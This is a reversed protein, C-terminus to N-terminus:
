DFCGQLFWHDDDLRRFLWFRSATETEVRYYDRKVCAGRWWATELREPGWYNAIRQEGQFHFRAPSGDPVTSVDIPQPPFFMRLPRCHFSSANILSSDQRAHGSLKAESVRGAETKDQTLSRYRFAKESQWDDVPLARVVRDANLRSSLREVLDAFERSDARNDHMFLSHQRQELPETDGAVVTVCEVASPLRVSDLQMEALRVFHEPHSSVRYLGIKISMTQKKACDFRIALKHTGHGHRQLQRALRELLTRVIHKITEWHATAHELLWKQEFTPPRNFNCITELKNGTLYDLRDLTEKGIRSPLSARPLDALQQIHHIGLRDLKKLTAKPLRLAAVPLHFLAQPASPPVITLPSDSFHAAAWAASPTDAIALRPRYGKAHIARAVYTTLAPEDGYLHTVGALDFYLSDPLDLSVLPSFQNCWDCLQALAAHDAAPDHPQVFFHKSTILTAADVLPMDLRVGRKAAASSCATVIQRQRSDRVYLVVPKGSFEPQQVVLRHIPWNPFWACLIRKLM